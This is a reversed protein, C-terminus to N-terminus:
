LNIEYTIMYCNESDIYDESKEWVISNDAFVSELAQETSESKSKTYLEVDYGQIVKYVTNDADFNNTQTAQICVFPLAPAHGEPFARYTVKTAFTSIASISSKLEALTM